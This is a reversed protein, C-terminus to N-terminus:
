VVMWVLSFIGIGLIVATLSELAQLRQGGKQLKNAGSGSASDSLALKSAIRAAVEEPATTLVTHRGRLLYWAGAAVYLTITPLIVQVNAWGYLYGAFISVFIVFAPLWPFVPTHYPRFLDPEKRRLVFLCIMALVYWIVAT